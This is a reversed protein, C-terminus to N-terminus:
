SEEYAPPAIVIRTPIEVKLVVSSNFPIFETAGSSTEIEMVDGAGFNHLARVRGIPANDEDEVALGILDAHYFEDQDPAPLASRPVSLQRGKLAEAATRDAIEKFLVIVEGPKGDRLAAISLYRGDDTALPGYAGLDEPNHTFTRVRVEGKAGHAGIVAGL